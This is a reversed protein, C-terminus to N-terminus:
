DSDSMDVGDDEEGEEESEKDGKESPVHQRNMSLFLKRLSKIGHQTVSHNHNMTTEISCMKNYLMYNTIDGEPTPPPASSAVTDKYRFVGNPEIIIDTNKTATIENIECNRAAMPTNPERQLQVDHFELIRSIVRGYPLGGILSLQHKMHHYIVYAWNIKMNMKLARILELESVQAHYSHKPVLVYALVYHLMRDSVSLLNVLIVVRSPESKQRSMLSARTGRSISVFYELSNYNSWADTDPETEHRIKEGESPIQLCTGLQKLDMCIEVNKVKATFVLDGFDNTGFTVTTFFDRIMDPYYDGIDSTLKDVGLNKLLTQFTFSHFPFARFNVYKVPMLNRTRVDYSLRRSKVTAAHQEETHQSTEEDM